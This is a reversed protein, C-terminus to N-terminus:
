GRDEEKEHRQSNTEHRCGGREEKKKKKESLDVDSRSGSVMAATVETSPDSLAHASGWPYM